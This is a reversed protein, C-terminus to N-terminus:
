GLPIVQVIGEIEQAVTVEARALAAISDFGEGFQGPLTRVLIRDRYEFFKRLQGILVLTVVLSGGCEALQVVDRRRHGPALIGHRAVHAGRQGPAVSRFDLRHSGIDGRM